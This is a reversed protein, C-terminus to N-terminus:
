NVGGGYLSPGFEVRAPGRLDVHAVLYRAADMGHDNEKKPEEGRRRGSSTDWVYGGIEEVTSAPAKREDLDLDREVVADRLIFLRPKGDGAVKQRSQVAQIGESVAKHAAVTSMELHRELTARGEADHDCIIARPRPEDKSVYLITRAHDEVLRKTMYIERYLYLRGDGDQAWFQCVFPNVFGFDVSWFRPWEKPIEFRDVLHIAPNWEYIQGEAAVWRGYRLRQLRVGTLADLKSLYAIGRPTYQGTERDFYVPNEEHQANLMLLKGTDARKKLWHGPADPNTDAILQQYPIVGNRLRTTVSEWDNEVLEIAEQVYACDFETSMVKGPKDLGGVVMVSGNPYRYEQDVSSWHILTDLWGPPFVHQELTVIAAQTLSARTKRLILLRCGPYKWALANFKELCARSKGTGAPGSVVIEPERCEFLTKSTGFPRYVYQKPPKASM